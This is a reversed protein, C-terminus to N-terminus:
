AEGRASDDRRVRITRRSGASVAPKVVVEDWGRGRMIGELPTAEGRRVLVTPVVPIGRAELDLLYGKHANWRITAAPNWLSSRTATREVWALFADLHETYNWTSRIVTLRAVERDGLAPDDWPVAHASLGRARLAALLPAMDPDSEPLVRCTAVAVDM